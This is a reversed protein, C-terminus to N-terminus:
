NLLRREPRKTKIQLSVPEGVPIMANKIQM